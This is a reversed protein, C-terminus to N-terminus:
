LSVCIDGLLPNILQLLIHVPIEIISNATGGGGFVIQESKVGNDVLSPMDLSIPPVGGVPFSTYFLVEEKTALRSDLAELNMQEKLLNRVARQRLKKTGPVIVLMPIDKEKTEVVIIITKVIQSLRCQLLEAAEEATHTSAKFTHIKLGQQVLNHETIFNEINNLPIKEQISKEM